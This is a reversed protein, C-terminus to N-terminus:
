ITFIIRLKIIVSAYIYNYIKIFNYKLTKPLFDNDLVHRVQCM